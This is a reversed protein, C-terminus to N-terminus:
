KSTKDDLAGYINHIYKEMCYVPYLIRLKNVNSEAISRRNKKNKVYKLLKKKNLTKVNIKMNKLLSLIEKYPHRKHSNLNKFLPL